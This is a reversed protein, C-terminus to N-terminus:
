NSRHLAKRMVQLPADRGTFLKFAEVAQWFLMGSGNFVSGGANEFRQMVETVSPSYRLDFLCSQAPLAKLGQLAETFRPLDLPLTYVVLRYHNLLEKFDATESSKLQCKKLPTRSLLIDALAQARTLSRNVITIEEAGKVALSFAVARAAGGAGVLLVPMSPHYHDISDEVARTFGAGDTSLGTLMGKNNIITNVSNLAKAEDSVRDLHAIVVEKYPSTVNAGAISLARFGNIAAAVSGAEVPAALYVCNLNLAKFAANHLAPSLSHEVPNGILLYLKTNADIAM